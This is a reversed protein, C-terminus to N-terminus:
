QSVPIVNASHFLDDPVEVHIDWYARSPIGVNGLYLDGYVGKWSLDMLGPKPLGIALTQNAHVCDKNIFGDDPHLGSPIDNAIVAVPSENIYTCLRAIHPRIKGKINYGIMGDIILDVGKLMKSGFEQRDMMGVRSHKLSELEAKAEPIMRGTDSSLVVIPHVNRTALHRAAVLAGGGNGGPGAFVMVKKIHPYLDLALSALNRGANEMMQRLSVNYQGVMLQDVKKMQDSSISPIKNNM